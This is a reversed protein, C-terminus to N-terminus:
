ASAPAGAGTPWRNKTSSPSCGSTSREAGVVRSRPGELDEQSLLRPRERAPERGTETSANPPEDDREHSPPGSIPRSNLSLGPSPDLLPSLRCAWGFVNPGACTTVKVRVSPSPKRWNITRGTVEVKVANPGTGTLHVRYDAEKWSIEDLRFGYAHEDLTIWRGIRPAVDRGRISTSKLTSKNM